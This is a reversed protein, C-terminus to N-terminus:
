CGTVRVQNVDLAFICSHTSRLYGAFNVSDAAEPLLGRPSEGHVDFDSGAGRRRFDPLSNGRNPIIESTRSGTLVLGLSHAADHRGFADVGGPLAIPSNAAQAGEWEAQGDRASSHGRGADRDGADQRRVPAAANKPCHHAGQEVGAMLAALRNGIKPSDARLDSIPCSSRNGRRLNLPRQPNRFCDTATSLWAVYAKPDASLRRALITEAANWTTRGFSM